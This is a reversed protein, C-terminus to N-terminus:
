LSKIYYLTDPHTEGLVQVSKDVLPNMLELSEHKRGLYALTTSLNQIRRFTFPHDSGIVRKSVAVLTQQI